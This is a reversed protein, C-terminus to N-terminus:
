PSVRLSLPPLATVSKFTLSASDSSEWTADAARLTVTVTTSDAQAPITVYCAVANVVPVYNSQAPSCIAANSVPITSSQVVAGTAIKVGAKYANCATPQTGTLQYPGSSIKCGSTCVCDMALVPYSMLLLVALFVRKM